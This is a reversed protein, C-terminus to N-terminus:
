ENIVLPRQPPGFKFMQNFIEEFALEGLERFTEELDYDSSSKDSGWEWKKSNTDTYYDEFTKIENSADM